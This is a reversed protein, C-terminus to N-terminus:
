RVVHQTLIAEVADPDDPTIVPVVRRDTHIELATNKRPRDKDLNYWHVFDVSGWIRYRGRWTGLTRREVSRISSYPISKAGWLYYWRILLAADTCAIRGDDYLV